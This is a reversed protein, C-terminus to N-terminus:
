HSKQQKEFEEFSKYLTNDLGCCNNFFKDLEEHTMTESLIIHSPDMYGLNKGSRWLAEELSYIHFHRTSGVTEGGYLKHSAPFRDTPAAPQRNPGWLAYLEEARVIQIGAEIDDTLYKFLSIEITGRTLNEKTFKVYVPGTVFGGPFAGNTYVERIYKVDELAHTRKNEEQKVEVDEFSKIKYEMKEKEYDIDCVANIQHEFDIEKIRKVVDLDDFKKDITTPTGDQYMFARVPLTCGKSVLGIRDLEQMNILTILIKNYDNEPNHMDQTFKHHIKQTLLNDGEGFSTDFYLPIMWEYDTEFVALYKKILDLRNNLMELKKKSDTSNEASKIKEELSQIEEKYSSIFEQRREEIKDLMTKLEEPTAVKIQHVLYKYQILNDFDNEEFRDLIKLIKEKENNYFESEEESLSNQPLSNDTRAFTSAFKTRLASIVQSYFTNYDVNEEQNELLYVSEMLVKIKEAFNLVEGNSKHLKLAFFERQFSLEIQNSEIMKQYTDKYEELVDQVLYEIYEKQPVLEGNATKVFYDCFKTNNSWEEIKAMAEDIKEILSEDANAKIPNQALFDDIYLQVQAEPLCRYSSPKEVQEYLSLLLDKHKEIISDYNNRAMEVGM